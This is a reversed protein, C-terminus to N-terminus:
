KLGLLISTSYHYVIFIIEPEKEQVPISEKTNLHILNQVNKKKATWYTTYKRPTKKEHITQFGVFNVFIVTSGAFIEYPIISLLQSM